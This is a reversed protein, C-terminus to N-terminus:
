RLGVSISFRDTAGPRVWRLGGSRLEFANPPGMWPEVCYFPSDDDATWTVFEAEPPPVPDAGLRLVVDGPRGKEGFVAEASRLQTHHTDLLAPNALSEDIGLQPGPVMRGQSDQRLRKGALLRVLYDSRRTGDAWPVKFYFHHGACWPIQDPGHNSLTLECVLGMPEFRYTVVFEYDYPYAARAEDGPLFRAAFGRADAQSLEFQGQRAVGHMPMPRRIGDAARWFHIEGRDFSRGVFPFLIPNGGRVKAVEDFNAEEPWHIVDRISGDGLAVNWNMLRAGGEPWALFTSGGVKWRRISRGQYEIKEM